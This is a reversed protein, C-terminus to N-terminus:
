AWYNVCPRDANNFSFPPNYGKRPAKPGAARTATLLPHIGKLDGRAASCRTEAERTIQERCECVRCGQRSTREDLMWAPRGPLDSRFGATCCAAFFEETVPLKLRTRTVGTITPADKPRSPARLVGKHLRAISAQDKTFICSSRYNYSRAM